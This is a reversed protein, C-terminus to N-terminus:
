SINFSSWVYMSLPMGLSTIACAIASLGTYACVPVLVATAIATAAFLVKPITVKGKPIRIVYNTDDDTLFKSKYDATVGKPLKVGAEKEIKGLDFDFDKNYAM